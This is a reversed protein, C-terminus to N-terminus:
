SRSSKSRTGGSEDPYLHRLSGPAIRNRELYTDLDAVKVRMVRGLKYAPIEGEDILRYLTRPVIGLMDAAETTGVWTGAGSRAM